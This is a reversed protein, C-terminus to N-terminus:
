SPLIWLGRLGSLTNVVKPEREMVTEKFGIFGLCFIAFINTVLGEIIRILPKLELKHIGEERKEVGGEVKM